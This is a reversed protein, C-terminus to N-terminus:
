PDPDHVPNIGDGRGVTLKQGKWRVQRSFFAAVWETLTLFDRIPVLGVPGAEVGLCWASRYHLVLRLAVAMSVWPIALWGAGLALMIAGGLILPSGWSIWFFAFGWPNVFRITRLWRLEHRWLASPTNETVRTQVAFPALVVELGQKRVLEGLRYDDALSDAFAGFGGIHDLTERRLALTAGFAFARSGLLWAVWVSPAFGDDIFLKGLREWFTHGSWGGYLCTVLGNRDDGLPPVLRRLYDPPALIDSDSIVIWRHRAFPYLNHLNNVKPNAGIREQSIVTRIMRDPHSLRLQEVVALAPDESDALGFLLEYDPYDQNCFSRLCAELGPEHGHLPKLISVPLLSAPAVGTKTWRSMALMSVFAYVSPLGLLILGVLSLMFEGHRDGKLSVIGICPSFPSLSTPGRETPRRAELVILALMERIVCTWSFVTLERIDM